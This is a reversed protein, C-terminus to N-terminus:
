KMSPRRMSVVYSPALPYGLLFGACAGTLTGVALSSALKAGDPMEEDDRPCDSCGDGIDSFLAYYSLGLLAGVIGGYMLGDVHGRAYDQNMAFAVDNTPIVRSLEGEYSYLLTSDPGFTVKYGRYLGGSHTHVFSFNKGQELHETAKEYQPLRADMQLVYTHACGIVLVSILIGCFGLRIRNM